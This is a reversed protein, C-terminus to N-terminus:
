RVIGESNITLIARAGPRGIYDLKKNNLYFEIGGANGAVIYFQSKAKLTKKRGPYLLFDIDSNNDVRGGIWCTDSATIMLSLSDSVVNTVADKVEDKKKEEPVEFRTKNEELVEKYPRETIIQTDSSNFFVFYAIVAAALIAVAYIGILINKNEGTPEVQTTNTPSSFEKKVREKKESEEKEIEQIEEEAIERGEKAIEYKRLVTDGDLDISNSYERIFARIYVDPMVDFNGEEIAVLFKMDIRTKNSIQQLTIDKLERATKLEEGLKILTEKSM